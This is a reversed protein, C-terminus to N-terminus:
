RSRKEGQECVNTCAVPFHSERTQIMALAAVAAWSCGLELGLRTKVRVCGKVRVRVRVCGSRGM